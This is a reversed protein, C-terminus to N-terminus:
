RRRLAVLFHRLGALGTGRADLPEFRTDCVVTGNPGGRLEDLAVFVQYRDPDFMGHVAEASGGYRALQEGGHVEVFWDADGGLTRRAGRLAELIAVM